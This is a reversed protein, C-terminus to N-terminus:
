YGAALGDKRPDSGGQLVGNEWDICIAQGGGHPSDADVLRHGREALLRRTEQPVGTEVSLEGDYLFFRAADLSAQMDMAYDIWNSLVYAQGMAQYQGGMVGFSLVPKGAKYVMAPIITHMPRKGPELQNFHGEELTFGGGRNQLNIGTNGAVLGSGWSYFVSNIFSCANRDKDVVTLYVTDKHNPLASAVPQSLAQAFNIRGFQQAAFADSLLKEVPLTNFASDSVFRDREAMALSFAESLLQVHDAGLHAFDAVNTQAMINLAMLTTIGQGNPPIECVTYGRYDNSIPEVWESRHQAFDDLSLLGNHSNSFRVIEEAIEGCYLADRGQKAIARLSRALDPQRHVSGVMPAKGNVLYAAAAEPTQALLSESTQWNHAIVPSVVYGQEAYGIAAQLLEAFDLKGLAQNATYWADIAGPVTVPLIGSDPMSTHGRSHMADPTAAAPSRGSGNLAHLKGSAAEHYLIFCDGGIGSSYSEVVSLTASAAIAADLANGGDRLTQLAVQTAMPQSTAAMVETSMVASRGPLQYDRM